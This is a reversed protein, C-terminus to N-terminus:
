GPLDSYNTVECTVFEPQDFVFFKERPLIYEEDDLFKVKYKAKQKPKTPPVYEILMAPWCKTSRPALALVLEGPIQLTTDQPPPSWSREPSMSLDEDVMKSKGKARSRARTNGDSATEPPDCFSGTYTSLLDPLGEEEDEAAMTMDEVAAQWKHSLESKHRKHASPSTPLSTTRFTSLTFRKTGKKTHLPLLNHRSPSNISLSGKAGSPLEGYLSVRFPTSKHTVRAPWWMREEELEIGDGQLDGDDIIIGSENVLVWVFDGLTKLSWPEERSSKGPSTDFLPKSPTVNLFGNSGSPKSKSSKPVRSSRSALSPSQPSMEVSKSSPPLSKFQVIPSPPATSLPSPSLTSLSSMTDKESIAASAKRKKSTAVKLRPAATVPQAAPKRKKSPHEPSVSLKLPSARFKGKGGYRYKVGSKRGIPEGFSDSSPEDDSRGPSSLLQEAFSATAKLAAGRTPMARESLIASTSM